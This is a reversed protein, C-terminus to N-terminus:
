RHHKMYSRIYEHVRETSDYPRVDGGKVAREISM